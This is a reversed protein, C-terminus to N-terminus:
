LPDRGRRRPHDRGFDGRAPPGQEDPRRATHRPPGGAPGRMRTIEIWRRDDNRLLECGGEDVYLTALVEGINQLRRQERERVYDRFGLNVSVQTAVAFAIAIVVNTALIALFLKHAIRLGM